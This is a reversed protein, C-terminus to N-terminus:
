VIITFIIFKCVIELHMKKIELAILSMAYKEKRAKERERERERTSTYPSSTCETSKAYSYLPDFQLVNNVDIIDDFVQPSLSCVHDLIEHTFDCSADCSVM